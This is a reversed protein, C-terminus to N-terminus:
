PCSRRPDPIKGNIERIESWTDHLGYAFAALVLIGAIYICVSGLFFVATFLILFRLHRVVGDHDAELEKRMSFIVACCFLCVIGQTIIFVTNSLGTKELNWPQFYTFFINSKCLLCSSVLVLAAKIRVSWIAKWVPNMVLAALLPPYLAFIFRIPNNFVIPASSSTKSLGISASNTISSNWESGSFFFLTPFIWLAFLVRTKRDPLFFLSSVGLIMYIYNTQCLCKFGYPVINWVFGRDPSFEHLSYPWIFPSGLQIKNMILQWVFATIFGTMGYSIAYLYNRKNLWLASFSDYFVFALLPAFFIYNIRVLCIFGFGLSLIFFRILSQSKKMAFILLIVLLLVSMYDCMANRGLWTLHFFPFYRNKLVFCFNANSCYSEAVSLSPSDSMAYMPMYFVMLILWLLVISFSQLRSLGLKKHFFWYLVLFLCPILIFTQFNMYVLVFDVWHHLHFLIIFPICLIPFGITYFFKMSTFDLTLLKQAIKFYHIEDFPAIITNEMFGIYWSAFGWYFFLLSAPLLYIKKESKLHFYGSLTALGIVFFFIGLFMLYDIKEVIPIFNGDKNM